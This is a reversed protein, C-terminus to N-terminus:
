YSNGCLCDDFNPNGFQVPKSELHFCIGIGLTGRLSGWVLCLDAFVGKM